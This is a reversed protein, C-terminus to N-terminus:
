RTISTYPQTFDLKDVDFPGNIMEALHTSEPEVSMGIMWGSIRDLNLTIRYRSCVDAFFDRFPKSTVVLYSVVEHAAADSLKPDDKLEQFVPESRYVLESCHSFFSHGVDHLLAAMRLEMRSRDDVLELDGGRGNLAQAYREALM